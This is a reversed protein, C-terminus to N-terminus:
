NKSKLEVLEKKLKLMELERGVMLKNLRDSETLAKKAEKESQELAITREKIKQDLSNYDDIKEKASQQLDSTLKVAEQESREREVIQRRVFFFSYLAIIVLIISGIIIVWFLIMAIQLYKAVASNTRAEFMLYFDDIPRMIEAKANHYAQNNVLDSAMKQDPAKKITFNGQSDEFLGKMANMAVTEARVLGDSNKQALALKALEEKTFGEKIMLEQLAIAEGDGRPKQGTASVFDWYINDYDLPRPIKGNRIDLVAWYEREFESNGTAVYTRVMRTLDDSSQRLQDALQYSNYESDRSKALNGQNLYLLVLLSALVIILVIQAGFLVSFSKTLNKFM